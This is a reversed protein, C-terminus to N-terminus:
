HRVNAVVTREVVISLFRDGSDDGDSACHHLNLDKRLRPFLYDFPTSDPSHTCLKLQMLIHPTRYSLLSLARSRTLLDQTQDM